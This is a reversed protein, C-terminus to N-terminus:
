IRTAPTIRGSANIALCRGTRRVARASAVVRRTILLRLALAQLREVVWGSHRGFSLRGRHEPALSGTKKFFTRCRAECLPALRAGRPPCGGVIGRDASRSGSPWIGLSRITFQRPRPGSLPLRLWCASSRVQFVVVVPPFSAFLSIGDVSGTTLGTACHV